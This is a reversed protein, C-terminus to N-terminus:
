EDYLLKDVLVYLNFEPENMESEIKKRILNRDFHSMRQNQILRIAKEALLYSRRENGLSEQMRKEIEEWLKEVGSGTNAITKVVPIVRNAHNKGLDLLNKYLIDAGELDAKNIIFIDAIEMIGSKIAQVEDGAGPVLVLGTIDALGAIEIESQGVGVTEVLICDFPCSRLVDTLEIIKSSLGGLSGRTAVSRIYVEPDNFHEALRLRDGLLSGFNFPSSPDVALIAVKKGKKRLYSVLANSLTSKGAGPPGTIGIVPIPRPRLSRLIESSGELDNEVMTLCRALSRIDGELAKQFINKDKSVMCLFLSNM